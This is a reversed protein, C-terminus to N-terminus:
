IGRFSLKNEPAVTNRDTLFDWMHEMFSCSSGPVHIPVSTFQGIVPVVLLLQSAGFTLQSIPMDDHDRHNYPDISINSRLDSECDGEAILYRRGNRLSTYCIVECGM